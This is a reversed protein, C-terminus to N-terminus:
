GCALGARCGANVHEIPDTAFFLQSLCDAHIKNEYIGNKDDHIDREQQLLPRSQFM